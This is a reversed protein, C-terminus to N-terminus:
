TGHPSRVLLKRSCEGSKSFDVTCKGVRHALVVGYVAPDTAMCVWLGPKAEAASIAKGFEPSGSEETAAADLAAAPEPADEAEAEAKLEPEAAPEGAAGLAPDATVLESRKVVEDAAGGVGSFDVTAKSGAKKVVVGRKSADAALRVWLGPKVEASSIAKGFAGATEPMALKEAEAGPTAPEPEPEPEPQAVAEPEPQAESGEEVGKAAAAAAEKKAEEKAAKKAEKKAVVLEQVKAEIERCIEQAQDFSEMAFSVTKDDLTELVLNWGKKQGEEAHEWSKLSQYIHTEM